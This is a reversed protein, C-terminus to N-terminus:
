NDLIMNVIIVIDLIDLMNDSNLDAAWLQSDNPEDIYIAFNVISIVDLINIETDLNVDGLIGVSILAGEGYSLIENGIADSVLTSEFDMFISTGSPTNESVYLRLNAIHIQENPPYTCGELSFVIGIFTGDVYNSSASFCDNMSEIDTELIYQGFDQASVTFQLGGVELDSELFIGQIIESGPSTSINELSLMAYVDGGSNGMNIYFNMETYGQVSVFGAYDSYGNKSIVVSYDGSEPLEVFFYGENDSYMQFSFNSNSILIDAESIPLMTQDDCDECLVRGMLVSPYYWEGLSFNLQYDQNSSISIDQTQTENYANVTVSYQGQPLAISYYGQDNTETIFFGNASSIQVLAGAVMEIADGWVYEVTGYLFGNELQNSACSAECDEFSNFFANSYDVGNEDITGCGSVWVCEEGNWGVGIVMECWGFFLDSIDECVPELNDPDVCQALGTPNNIWECENVRCDYENDYDSCELNEDQDDFLDACDINDQELCSYCADVIQNIESLTDESCDEACDNFFNNPGFNSIIWDCAGNPDIEPDILNLDDCDSLCDSIGGEEDEDNEPRFCAGENIMNNSYEWDCGLELCEEANDIDSCDFDEDNNDDDEDFCDVLNDDLDYFDAYCGGCYNSICDVPTNLQCDESFECPDAICDVPLTCDQSLNIRLISYASCEICNVEDGITLEVFRNLYMSLDEEYDEFTVFIDEFDSDLEAELYYQSCDDMCFSMETSRLYGSLTDQTFSFALISVFFYRLM